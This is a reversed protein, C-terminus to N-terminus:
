AATMPNKKVYKRITDEQLSRDWDKQVLHFLKIWEEHGRFYKWAELAQRSLKGTDVRDLIAMRRDCGAARSEFDEVHSNKGTSSNGGLGPGTECLVTKSVM